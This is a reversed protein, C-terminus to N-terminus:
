KNIGLLDFDFDDNTINFFVSKNSKLKDFVEILKKTSNAKMKITLILFVIGLSTIIYAVGGISEVLAIGSIMFISLIMYLRRSWENSKMEKIIKDVSGIEKIDKEVSTLIQYCKHNDLGVEDTLTIFNKIEQLFNDEEFFINLEQNEQKLLNANKMLKNIKNIKNDSIFVIRNAQETYLFKITSKWNDLTINLKEHILNSTQKRTKHLNAVLPITSITFKIAISYTSEGIENLKNAKNEENVANAYGAVATGWGLTNSLRGKSTAGIVAGAIAGFQSLKKKFDAVQAEERKNMSLTVIENINKLYYDLFLSTLITKVDILAQENKQDCLALGKEVYENILDEKLEMEGNISKLIFVYARGIWASAITTDNELVKEFATLAKDYQEERLYSIAMEIISKINEEKTILLAEELLVNYFTM